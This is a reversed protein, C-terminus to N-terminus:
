SDPWAPRFRLETWGDHDVFVPSVRVGIGVGAPPVVRAFVRGGGDLDVTAVTYPVDGGFAPTLPRHVRVWSYVTGAGTAAVLVGGTAGCFPCSPM